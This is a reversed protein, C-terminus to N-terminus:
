QLNEFIAKTKKFISKRYLNNRGRSPSLFSIKKETGIFSSFDINQLNVTNKVKNDNIDNDESENNKNPSKTEKEKEKKKLNFPYDLFDAESLEQKKSFLLKKMNKPKEINSLENTTENKKINNKKNIKLPILLERHKPLNSVSFNNILEKLKFKNKKKEPKLKLGKLIKGETKNKEFKVNNNMDTVSLKNRSLISKKKTLRKNNITESNNDNKKDDINNNNIEKNSNKEEDMEEEDNDKPVYNKSLYNEVEDKNKKFGYEKLYLKIDNINRFKIDECEALRAKVEAGLKDMNQKVKDLCKLLVKNYETKIIQLNLFKTYNRLENEKLNLNSFSELIDERHRPVQIKDIEVKFDNIMEEDLSYMTKMDALNLSHSRIYELLKFLGQLFAERDTNDIMWQQTQKYGLEIINIDKIIEERYVDCGLFADGDELNIKDHNKHENYRVNCEFCVFLNCVRCYYISNKHNCIQCLMEGGNKKRFSQKTTFKGSEAQNNVTPIQTSTQINPLPVSEVNIIPSESYSEPDIQALVSFILRSNNEIERDKYTLRFQSLPLRFIKNAINYLYQCPTDNLIDVNFKSDNYILTINM